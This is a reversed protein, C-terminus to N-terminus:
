NWIMCTLAKVLIADPNSLETAIEYTDRPLLELGKSSIKNLTQISFM